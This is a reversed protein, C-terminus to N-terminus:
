HSSNLRTSKRDRIEGTQVTNLVHEPDNTPRNSEVIDYVNATVLVGRSPQWKVGAEYQRGRVPVFAVDNFDLGAAPLFSESYSVYPSVGWGIEGILGARFSTAKDVQEAMGETKSRARDRRPGVGM